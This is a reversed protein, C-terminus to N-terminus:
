EPKQTSGRGDLGAQRMGGATLTIIARTPPTSFHSPLLAGQSAQGTLWRGQRKGLDTYPEFSVYISAGELAPLPWVQGAAGPTHPPSRVLRLPTPEPGTPPKGPSLRISFSVDDLIYTPERLIDRKDGLPRRQSRNSAPESM